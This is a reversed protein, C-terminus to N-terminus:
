SAGVEVRHVKGVSAGVFTVARGARWAAATPATTWVGREEAGLRSQLSSTTIWAQVDAVELPTLHHGEEGLGYHCRLWTNVTAWDWVRSGKGVVARPRPFGGPGRIGTVWTRVTERNVGVREAIDSTVVFNEVVRTPTADPVVSRVAAVATRAAEVATRAEVYLLAHVEDGAHLWHVDPVEEALRDIRDDDFYDVGELALAMRFQQM